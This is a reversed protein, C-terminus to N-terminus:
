VEFDVEKKTEQKDIELHRIIKGAKKSMLRLHEYDNIGGPIVINKIEITKKIGARKVNEPIDPFFEKRIVPWYKM